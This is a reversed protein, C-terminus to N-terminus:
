FGIVNKTNHAVTTFINYMQKLHCLEHQPRSTLLDCVVTTLFPRLNDLDARITTNPSLIDTITNHMVNKVASAKVAAQSVAM